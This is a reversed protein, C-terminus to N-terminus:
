ALARQWSECLEVEVREIDLQLLILGVPRFLATSVKIAGEKPIDRYVFFYRDRQGKFKAIPKYGRRYLEVSSFPNAYYIDFFKGSEMREKEESFDLLPEFSVKEGVGEHLKRVFEEWREFRGGETDHPCVSFSLM